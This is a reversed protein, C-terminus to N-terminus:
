KLMSFSVKFLIWEYLIRQGIRCLSDMGLPTLETLMQPLLVVFATFSPNAASFTVGACNWDFYLEVTTTPGFSGTGPPFTYTDAADLTVTAVVSYPSLNCSTAGWIGELTM